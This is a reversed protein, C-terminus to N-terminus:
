VPCFKIGVYFIRSRGARSFVAKIQLVMDTRYNHICERLLLQNCINRIVASFTIEPHVNLVLKTALMCVVNFTRFRLKFEILAKSLTNLSFPDSYM